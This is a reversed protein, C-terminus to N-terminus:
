RAPVAGVANFWHLVVNIKKFQAVERNKNDSEFVGPNFLTQLYFRLSFEISVNEFFFFFDFIWWITIIISNFHQAQTHSKPDGLFSNTWPSKKFLEFM